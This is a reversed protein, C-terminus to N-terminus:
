QYFHLVMRYSLYVCGMLGLIVLATFITKKHHEFGAHHYVFSATHRRMRWTLVGFMQLVRAECHNCFYYRSSPLCTMWRKRSVRKVVGKGCYPCEGEHYLAPV